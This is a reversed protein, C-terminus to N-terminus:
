ISRGKKRQQKRIRRAFAVEELDEGHPKIDFIGAAASVVSEVVGVSQSVTPSENQVPKIDQQRNNLQLQWNIKSYSFMKDVKSGNFGYGNKEFIIGQKEGTNGKYKFQAIIGERKLSKLLETWDKCQPVHKKLADYIEYKTKDPEKLRHRKVNEKGSSLYLGYKATLEKCIKESRFQDNSESITKGDNDVRNFCLHIHPHEKDFHRGIIYQTNVIGMKQMYERAIKVMMENTLKDKDQVSFNLSIHGVTKSLRPNLRTQAIFSRIISANDKLWVGGSDLIDAHKEKDLIYNIVGKFSRGKVIKAM